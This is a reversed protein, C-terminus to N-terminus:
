RYRVAVSQWQYVSAADQLTRGGNGRGVPENHDDYLWITFAYDAPRQGGTAEVRVRSGNIMGRLEVANPTPQSIEIDNLALDFLGLQHQVVDIVSNPDM